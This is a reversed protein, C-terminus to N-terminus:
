IWSLPSFNETWKRTSQPTPTMSEWFDEWVPDRAEEERHWLGRHPLPPLKSAGHAKPGQSKRTSSKESKHQHPTVLPKAMFSIGHSPSHICFLHAFHSPPPKFLIGYSAWAVLRNLIPARGLMMKLRTGLSNSSHRDPVDSAMIASTPFFMAFWRSARLAEAKFFACMVEGWAVWQGFCIWPWLHYWFLSM